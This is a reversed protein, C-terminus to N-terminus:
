ASMGELRKMLLLGATHSGGISKPWVLTADGMM